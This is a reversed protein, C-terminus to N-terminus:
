KRKEKTINLAARDMRKDRREQATPLHERHALIEKLDRHAATWETSQKFEITGGTAQQGSDDPRDSTERSEECALLKRLRSLLSGTHMAELASRDLIPLSRPM